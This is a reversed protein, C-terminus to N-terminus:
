GGLKDMWKEPVEVPRCGGEVLLVFVDMSDALVYRNSYNLHPQVIQFFKL